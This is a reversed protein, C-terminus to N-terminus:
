GPLGQSQSSLATAKAGQMKTEAGERQDKYMLGTPNKGLLRATKWGARKIAAEM